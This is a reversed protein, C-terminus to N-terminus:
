SRGFVEVVKLSGTGDAVMLICNEVRATMAAAAVATEAPQFPVTTYVVSMTVAYM